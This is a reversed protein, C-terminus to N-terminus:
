AAAETGDLVVRRIVGAFHELNLAKAAADAGEKMRVIDDRSLLRIAEALAEASFDAAVVGCGYERVLRAMEESPGIAVAVRGHVFQFFKNPLACISNLSTPPLAYVGIDYANVTQAVQDMPVPEHFVISPSNAWRRWFNGYGRQPLLYFDLTYGDGLLEVTRCLTELGRTPSYGGVHVMRIVRGSLPSPRLDVYADASMVVTAHRGYHEEFLGALGSSVTMLGDVRPLYARSVGRIVPRVLLRWVLREPFEDEAFEHADLVVRAGAPLNRYVAPLCEADNALVVDFTEGRLPRLNRLRTGTLWGLASARRAVLLLAAIARRIFWGTAREQGVGIDIFREVTFAESAKAAVTVDAIDRLAEIQRIVRPDSAAVTFSVILVSPRPSLPLNGLRGGVARSLLGAM